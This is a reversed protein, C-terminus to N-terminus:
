IEDDSLYRVQIDAVDNKIKIYKPGFTFVREVVSSTKDFPILEQLPKRCM